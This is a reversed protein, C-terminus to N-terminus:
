NYTTVFLRDLIHKDQLYLSGQIFHWQKCHWTYWWIFKGLLLVFLQLLMTLLYDYCPHVAYLHGERLLSGAANLVVGRCLLFYIVGCLVTGFIVGMMIVTGASALYPLAYLFMWKHCHAGPAAGVATISSYLIIFDSGVSNLPWAGM